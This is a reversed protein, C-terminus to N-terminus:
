VLSSFLFERDKRVVGRKRLIYVDPFMRQM